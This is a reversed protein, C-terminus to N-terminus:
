GPFSSPVILLNSKKGDEDWDENAGDHTSQGANEKGSPGSHLPTCM